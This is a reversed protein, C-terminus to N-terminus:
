RTKFNRAVENELMNRLIEIEQWVGDKVLKISYALAESFAAILIFNETGARLGFEQNGGLITSEILDKKKCFTGRGRKTWM